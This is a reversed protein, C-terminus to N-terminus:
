VDRASAGSPSNQYSQGLTATSLVSDFNEKSFLEFLLSQFNASAHLSGRPEQELRDVASLMSMNYEKPVCKRVDDADIDNLSYASDDISVEFGDPSKPTDASNRLADKIYCLNAYNWYVYFVLMRSLTDAFYVFIM